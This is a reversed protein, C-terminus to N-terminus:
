SKLLFSNTERAERTTALAIGCDGIMKRKLRLVPNKPEAVALAPGCLAGFARWKSRIVGYYRWIRGFSSLLIKPYLAIKTAEM